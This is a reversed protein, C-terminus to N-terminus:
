VFCICHGTNLLYVARHFPIHLQHNLFFSCMAGCKTFALGSLQASNLQRQNQLITVTVHLKVAVHWFVGIYSQSCHVTVNLGGCQASPKFYGRSVCVSRQLALEFQSRCWFVCCDVCHMRCLTELSQMGCTHTHQGWQVDPNVRFAGLTVLANLPSGYHHFERETGTPALGGYVAFDFYRRANGQYAWNPTVAMLKCM